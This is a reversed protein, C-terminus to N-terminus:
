VHQWGADKRKTMFLSFLIAKLFRQQKTTLDIKMSSNALDLALVQSSSVNLSYKRARDECLDTM